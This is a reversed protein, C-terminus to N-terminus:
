AANSLASYRSQAAALKALGAVGLRDQTELNRIEAKVERIARERIIKRAERKMAEVNAAMQADYQVAARAGAYCQRLAISFAERYSLTIGYRGNDRRALRHANLFIARRDIM